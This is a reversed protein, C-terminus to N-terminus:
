SSGDGVYYLTFEGNAIVKDVSQQRELSRFSAEDYRLGRYVTIERERDFTTTTLYLPRDEHDALRTVNAASMSPSFLGPGSPGVHADWHRGGGGRIGYLDASDDYVEFTSRYGETEAETVQQNPLSVYPSPFMVVLSLVLLVALGLASLTGAVGESSRRAVARTVRGYGLAGLVTAFVLIFGFHRFYQESVSGAFYVAFLVWLPVLGIVLSKVVSARKPDSVGLRNRLVDLGVWATLLGFVGAPVFLKALLELPSVGISSASEAQTYVSEGAMGSGVVADVFASVVGRAALFFLEFQTSWVVMALALVVTPLLFSRQREIAEFWERSSVRGLLQLGFVTAFVALVNLAEQPHFLVLAMSVLALLVFVGSGWGLLSTDSALYAIALFLVLSSYLTAQTFPHAHPHTSLHTIPLFMVAAFFSVVTATADGTLRRVFLPVFVVFLLGVVLTALMLARPEAFGFLREVTVATLHLGPYFVDGATIAGRSLERVWGLHTLADAQGLFHYRRVLPLGLVAAAAFGGLALAASRTPVSRATFGALLSVAFAIAVGVWFLTPTAWYISVEYGTTPNGVATMTAAALSTFGLALLLKLWGRGADRRERSGASSM